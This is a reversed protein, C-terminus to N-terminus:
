GAVESTKIARTMQLECAAFFVHDDGLFAFVNVGFVNFGDELAEGDFFKTNERGVVDPWLTRHNAFFKHQRQM